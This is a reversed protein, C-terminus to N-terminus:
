APAAAFVKVVDPMLDHVSEQFEADDDIEFTIPCGPGLLIMVRRGDSLNLGRMISKASVAALQAFCFAHVASEREVSYANGAYTVTMTQM